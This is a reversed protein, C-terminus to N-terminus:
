RNTWTNRRDYLQEEIVKWVDAKRMQEPLKVSVCDGLSRGSMSSVKKSLIELCQFFLCDNKWQSSFKKGGM